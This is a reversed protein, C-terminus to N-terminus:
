LRMPMVVYRDRYEQDAPRLEAASENDKLAIEVQGSKVVGLFDLLFRCNFAVRLPVGSYAADMSEVAQVGAFLLAGAQRSRALAGRTARALELM